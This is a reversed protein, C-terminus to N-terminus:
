RSDGFLVFGAWYYPHSYEPQSRVALQADRLAASKSKGAKIGEYFETMLRGTSTDDVSWLSAVVSRAGAIWFAEALSAVYDAETEESMASNCASLTVLSTGDLALSFIEEQTVKENNALKLYNDLSNTMDWQGHTALHLAQGQGGFKLFNSKSAQAGKFLKSGNFLAVIRDGEAASAPLDGTANAFTTVKSLAVVKSNTSKIFDTPKALESFSKLALLPEGKENHLAGFPVFNLRGSPVLVLNDASAIDAEIPAFFVNYLEQSASVVGELKGSHRKIKRLFRSIKKDLDAKGIQVSRLRFDDATVLFIYFEEETPFYQVVATGAPLSKQIDPLNLPDFRLASSYLSSHKQRIQRSQLLFESRSDALLKESEKLLSDRTASAPMAKLKDVKKTLLAVENEKQKVQEVEPTTTKQAAVKTVALSYDHGLSLATLAGKADKSALSAQALLTSLRRSRTRLNRAAQSDQGVLPIAAEIEKLAAQCHSTVGPWNKKSAHHEALLERAQLMYGSLGRRKSIALAKEWKQVALESRGLQNAIEAVKFLYKVQTPEDDARAIHTLAEDLLALKKDPDTELRARLYRSRGTVESFLGGQGFSFERFGDGYHPNVYLKGLNPLGALTQDLQDLKGGDVRKKLEPLPMVESISVTQDIYTSVLIAGGFTKIYDDYPWKLGLKKLNAKNWDKKLSRGLKKNGAYLEGLASVGNPGLAALEDVWIATAERGMLWDIDHFPNQRPQYNALHGFASQFQALIQDPSTHAGGLREVAFRSTALAYRAVPSIRGPQASSMAEARELYLQAETLRGRLSASQTAKTLLSLKQSAPLKLTLFHEVQSGMNKEIGLDSQLLFRTFRLLEGAHELGAKMAPTDLAPNASIWSSTEELLGEADDLEQISLTTDNTSQALLLRKIKLDARLLLGLGGSAKVKGRVKGRRKGRQKGRPKALAFDLCFLLALPVILIAAIRRRHLNM